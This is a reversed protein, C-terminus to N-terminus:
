VCSPRAEHLESCLRASCCPSSALAFRLFAACTGGGSMRLRGFSRPTLRWGSRMWRAGSAGPSRLARLTGAFSGAMPPPGRLVGCALPASFAVASHLAAFGAITVLAVRRQGQQADTVPMGGPRGGKAVVDRVCNKCSGPHVGRVECSAPLAVTILSDLLANIVDLRVAM